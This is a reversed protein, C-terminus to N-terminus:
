PKELQEVRGSEATRVKSKPNRSLVLGLRVGPVLFYPSCQLLKRAFIGRDSDTLSAGAYINRLVPALAEECGTVSVFAIEIALASSITFALCVLTRKM